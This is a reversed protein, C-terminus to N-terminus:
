RILDVQDRPMNAVEEAEFYFNKRVKSYNIEGHKLKELDLFKKSQGKKTQRVKEYDIEGDSNLYDERM